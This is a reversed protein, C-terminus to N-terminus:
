FSKATGVLRGAVAEPARSPAGGSGRTSSSAAELAAWRGAKSWRRKVVCTSPLIRAPREVERGSLAAPLSTSNGALRTVMRAGM